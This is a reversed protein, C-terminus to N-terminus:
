NRGLILFSAYLLFRNRTEAHRRLIYCYYHHYNPALTHLDHTSTGNVTRTVPSHDAAAAAPLRSPRHNVCVLTAGDPINYHSLTNLQRAGDESCRSTCDADLLLLLRSSQGWKWDVCVCVCSPSLRRPRRIGVDDTRSAIPLCVLARPV